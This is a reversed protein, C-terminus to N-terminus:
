MNNSCCAGFKNWLTHDTPNEKIATQFMAAAGDYNRDIFNLIGLAM